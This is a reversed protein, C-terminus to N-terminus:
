KFEYSQSGNSELYFQALAVVVPQESVIANLSLSYEWAPHKGIAHDNLVKYRWQNRSKVSVAM